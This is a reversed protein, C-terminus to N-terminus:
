EQAMADGVSTKVESFMYAEQQETLYEISRKVDIFM